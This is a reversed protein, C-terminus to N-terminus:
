SVRVVYAALEAAVEPIRREMASSLAREREAATRQAGEIEQELAAMAAEYRAAAAARGKADAQEITEQGDRVAAEKRADADACARAYEDALAIEKERVQELLTKEESMGIM